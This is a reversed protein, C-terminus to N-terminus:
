WRAAAPYSPATRPSLLTSRSTGTRSLPRGHSRGHGRGQRMGSIIRARQHEQYELWLDSWRRRSSHLPAAARGIRLHLRLLLQSVARGRSARRHGYPHLTTGEHDPLLRTGCITHFPVPASWPMQCASSSPLQNRAPARAPRPCVRVAGGQGSDASGAPPGQSRPGARHRPFTGPVVATKYESGVGDHSWPPLGLARDLVRAARDGAGAQGGHVPPTNLPRARSAPRGGLDVPGFPVALFVPARCVGTLIVPVISPGHRTEKLFM